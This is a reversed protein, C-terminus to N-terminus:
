VEAAGLSGLVLMLAITGNYGVHIWYGPYISGSQIRKRMTLVGLAAIPIAAFPFHRIELYHCATFLVTVLVAARQPGLRGKLGAYGFGRFTREEVWPALAVSLLMWALPLEEALRALQGRQEPPGTLLAFPLLLATGGLSLAAGTLLNRAVGNPVTQLGVEDALGYARAWRQASSLYLANCALGACAGVAFFWSGFRAILESSSLRLGPHLFGIVVGTALGGLFAGALQLLQGILFVRLSLWPTLRPRDEESHSEVVCPEPRLACM